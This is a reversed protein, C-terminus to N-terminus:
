AAGRCRFFFALGIVVLLLPDWQHGTSLSCGGGGRGTPTLLFAHTAGDIVGRGVIEGQNNIAEAQELQWGISPDILLNLDFMQGETFIFARRLNTAADFSQGVVQGLDNIDTAASSTAGDLMGLDIISGDAGWMVARSQVKTSSAGVIQGLDNIGIAQGASDDVGLTPLSQMGDSSTWLFARSQGDALRSGGVVQDSDNISYAVSIDGGLTGLPHVGGEDFIYAEQTNLNLPNRFQGVIKGSDNIDAASDTPLRIRGNQADWMFADQGGDDGVVVGLDNIGRAINDFGISPIPQMGSVRDWIYAAQENSGVSLTSGGVIQSSNNIDLAVSLAGGLTGLDLVNYRVNAAFSNHSVLLSVLVLYTCASGLLRTCMTIKGGYNDESERDGQAM